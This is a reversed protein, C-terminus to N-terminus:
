PALASVQSVRGGVRSRAEYITVRHGHQLLVDACRLGAFGAGVIGVHLQKTKSMTSPIIVSEPKWESRKRALNTENQPIRM